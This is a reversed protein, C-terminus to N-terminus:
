EDLFTNDMVCNLLIVDNLFGKLVGKIAVAQGKELGLTAKKFSDSMECIIYHSQNTTGKILINFNGNKTNTEKIYGEVYIVQEKPFKRGKKMDDLLVDAEYFAVPAVMSIDKELMSECCLMLVSVLLVAVINKSNIMHKAFHMSVFNILM